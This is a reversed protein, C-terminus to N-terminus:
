GGVWPILTLTTPHSMPWHSKSSLPSRCPWTMWMTHTHTHTHTNTMGGTGWQLEHESRLIDVWALKYNCNWIQLQAKCNRFFTHMQSQAHTHTHTHTHFLPNITAHTEVAIASPQAQFVVGACRRATLGHTRQKVLWSRDSHDQWLYNM